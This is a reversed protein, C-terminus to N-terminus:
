IPIQIKFETGEGTNSSVIIEGGHAKVIDYSLSLGLGTGQGTPKTTFFPQFIKDKISEPIGPGNDQVSIEVGLDGSPSKTATTKVIVEPKYGEGSQSGTGINRSPKPTSKAKENVTSRSREACAYFANSYLNLLVKGIDQPIVSIKPLDPDLNTQLEVKFNPDKALFSQYSLRFFEDALANLDTLEKVGSGTKSHELMGKVIADARKGHYNIKELNQKIDKSIFKAEEIDGKDLEENMEDLLETSVESFNNVFNLPNQIEHAIGATLEGLSAMKESQILQAQTAKLKHLTSEVKQKQEQLVTNAKQKQRNNRYLVVAVILFLAVGGILGRQKINNRYEIAAAEIETQREQEEMTAAQLRQFKQAGYLSDKAASAMQYYRVAEEPNEEAYLEALLSSATLIRNTYSLEIGFELGLKAYYIASDPQDLEKFIQAIANSSTSAERISNAAMAEKMSKQFYIIAQNPEGRKSALDGRLRNPIFGYTEELIELRKEASDLQDLQITIEAIFYQTVWRPFDDYNKKILNDAKQFYPLAKLFDGVSLYVNGVRILSAVWLDTLQEKEAIKLGQLGLQLAYPLDGKERYLVSLVNLAMIEGKKFDLERAHLLAQNALILSTDPNNSRYAESLRSKLVIRATDTKAQSLEQILREADKFTEMQAFASGCSIILILFIFLIKM